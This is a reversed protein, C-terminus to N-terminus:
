GAALPLTPRRRRPLAAMIAMRATAAPAQGGTQAAEFTRYAWLGGAGVGTVIALVALGHGIWRLM